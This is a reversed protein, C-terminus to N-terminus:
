RRDSGAVAIPARQLGVGIIRAGRVVDVLDQGILHREVGVFEAVLSRRIIKRRHGAEDRQRIVRAVNLIIPREIM